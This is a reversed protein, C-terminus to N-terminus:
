IAYRHVLLWIAVSLFMLGSIKTGWHDFMQVYSRAQGTAVAYVSDFFSAIILFVSGLLIFQLPINGNADIFQPIFAGIFILAKPNILIVIFGQLIFSKVAKEEINTTHKQTNDQMLLTIGLWILYAAGAYRIIEFLINLRQDLVSFGIALVAIIIAVGIQTGLVTQLGAFTGHKMSNTIIITVSPGPIIVVAICAIIYDLYSIVISM